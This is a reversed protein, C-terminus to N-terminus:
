QVSFTPITFTDILREGTERTETEIGNVIGTETEIRAAKRKRIEKMRPLDAAVADAAQVAGANGIM